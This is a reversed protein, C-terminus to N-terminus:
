QANMGLRPCDPCREIDMVLNKDPEGFRVGCCPCIYRAFKYKKDLKSAADDRLRPSYVREIMEM